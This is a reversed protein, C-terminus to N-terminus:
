YSAALVSSSFVVGAVMTVAKRTEPSRALMSAADGANKASNAAKRAHYSAIFAMDKILDRVEAVGQRTDINHQQLKGHMAVPAVVEDCLSLTYTATNSKTKSVTETVAMTSPLKDAYNFTAVIETALAMSPPGEADQEAIVTAHTEVVTTRWPEMVPHDNSLADDARRKWKGRRTNALVTKRGDRDFPSGTAYALVLAQVDSSAALTTELLEDARRAVWVALAMWIGFFQMAALCVMVTMATDIIRSIGQKQAPAQRTDLTERLNVKQVVSDMLGDFYDSDPAALSKHWSLEAERTVGRAAASSMTHSRRARPLPGLPEVRAPNVGYKQFLRVPLRARENPVFFGPMFGAVLVSSGMLMTGRLM